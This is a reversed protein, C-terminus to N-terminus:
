SSFATENSGNRCAKLLNIPSSQFLLDSDVSLNVFPIIFIALSLTPIGNPNESKLLLEFFDIFSIESSIISLSVFM